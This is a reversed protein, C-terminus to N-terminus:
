RLPMWGYMGAPAIALLPQSCGQACSDCRRDPLSSTRLHRFTMHQEPHRICAHEVCKSCFQIVDSQRTEHAEHTQLQASTSRCLLADLPSQQRGALVVVEVLASAKLQLANVISFLELHPISRPFRRKADKGNPLVLPMCGMPAGSTHSSTQTMCEFYKNLRWM